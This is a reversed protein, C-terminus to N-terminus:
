RAPGGTRTLHTFWEEYRGLRLRWREADKREALGLLGQERLRMLALSLGESLIQGTSERVRRRVWGTEFIPFREGLSRVVDPAAMESDALWEDLHSHLFGTPNVVMATAAKTPRSLDLEAALGLAGAWHLWQPWGPNNISRFGPEGIQAWREQVDALGLPVRATPQDLYWAAIRAFQYYEHPKEFDVPPMERGVIRRGFLRLCDDHELPRGPDVGAALRYAPGEGGAEVLGLQECARLNEQVMNNAKEGDRVSPPQLLAELRAQTVQGAQQVARLVAAMRTPVIVPQYLMM